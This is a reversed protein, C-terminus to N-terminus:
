RNWAELIRAIRSARNRAASEAPRVAADAFGAEELAAVVEDTSAFHVHVRGRVFASLLARFARETAGEAAGVHIDSLYVGSAFGSLTTAFRRWMAHVQDSPLYPLLGETIIALSHRQDLDSALAVLGEEQLVDLERVVHRAPDSGIRELARRKRAAM